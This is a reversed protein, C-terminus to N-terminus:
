YRLLERYLNLYAEIHKEYSFSSAYEKEKEANEACAYFESIFQKISRVMYEPEFHEWLFAHGNCVEPLSTRNAAFVPKGFQMAEVVPLGFGELLSPFFFAECHRYLWVKEAQSVKGAFFVNGIKEKEIREKMELAYSRHDEGAIYLDHEPFSKMVDLLVHFNKKKRVQGITFFFPRNPNLVSTPQEKPDADIRQVGNHILRIEKGNLHMNKRIEGATFESIATLIFSKNIRRQMRMVYKKIKLPPKEYLFNLDHITFIHKTKGGPPAFRYQQHISHWIDFKPLLFPFKKLFKNTKLYKVKDGYAGIFSKHVLFVFEIDDLEM